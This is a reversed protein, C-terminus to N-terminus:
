KEEEYDAIKNLKEIERKYKRNAKEINGKEIQENYKEIAKENVKM